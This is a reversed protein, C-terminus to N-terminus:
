AAARDDVFGGAVAALAVAGGAEVLREVDDTDIGTCLNWCAAMRRWLFPNLLAVPMPVITGITPPHIV